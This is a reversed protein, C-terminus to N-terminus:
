RRLRPVLGVFDRTAAAVPEGIEAVRVGLLPLRLQPQACAEVPGDRTPLAQSPLTQRVRHGAGADITAGTM